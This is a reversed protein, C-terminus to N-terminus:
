GASSEPPHTRINPDKNCQTRADQQFITSALADSATRLTPIRVDRYVGLTLKPDSHRMLRQADSVSVGAAHLWTGFSLRLCKRDIQRGLEDRYGASKATPRPDKKTPDHRLLGARVLDRLWTGRVPASGFIPDAESVGEPRMARLAEGVREPLPLDARRKTKSQSAQVTLVMAKFDVDGWRMRACESWRLGTMAAVLYFARRQPPAADLLAQFEHPRLARSLRRRDDDEGARPVLSSPLANKTARGNESAWRTLALAATRYANRTRASRGSERLEAMWRVFAEPTADSVRAVRCAKAWARLCRETERVHNASRGLGRLRATYDTILTEIPRESEARAQEDAPDVLGARIRDFRDQAEQRASEADRPTGSGFRIEGWAGADGKHKASRVRIYLVDGRYYVNRYRTRKYGVPPLIAPPRGPPPAPARPPRM